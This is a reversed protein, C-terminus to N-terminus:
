RVERSRLQNKKRPDLLRRTGFEVLAFAAAGISLLLAQYAWYSAFSAEWGTWVAHALNINATPPTALRCLQQLALFALLARAWSHRPMGLHAVGVGGIGWGLLHTFLSTAIFEGGGFLDIGWLVNGVCLWLFGVANLAPSRLLLGIGVCLAGLHCAWLLHEPQGRWAHTAAHVAYGAVAIAGWARRSAPRELFPAKL